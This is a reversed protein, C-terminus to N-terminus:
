RPCQKIQVLLPEVLYRFLLGVMTYPQQGFGATLNNAM